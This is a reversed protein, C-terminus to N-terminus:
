LSGRAQRRSCRGAAPLPTEARLGRLDSARPQLRAKPKRHQPFSAQVRTAAVGNGTPALMWFLGHEETGVLVDGGYAALEAAPTM